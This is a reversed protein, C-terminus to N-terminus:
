FEGREKELYTLILKFTSELSMYTVKCIPIQNMNPSSSPPSSFLAEMPKYTVCLYSSFKVQGSIPHPYGLHFLNDARMNLFCELIQFPKFNYNKPLLFLILVQLRCQSFNKFVPYHFHRELFVLFMKHIRVAHSSPLRHIKKAFVQVLGNVVVNVDFFEAENTPINDLSIKEYPRLM